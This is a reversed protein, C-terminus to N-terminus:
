VGSKSLDTPRSDFARVQLMDATSRDGIYKVGNRDKVNAFYLIMPYGDVALASCTTTETVCNVAAVEVM